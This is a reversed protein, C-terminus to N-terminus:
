TTRGRRSCITAVRVLDAISASSSLCGCAAGRGVLDAAGPADVVRAPAVDVEGLRGKGLMQPEVPELDDDIAGIARGILDRGRGQPLQAGLDDRDADRGVADVDVVAAARGCRLAAAPFPRRSRRRVDADREVAVGVPQDDDVLLALDISPSWSIASIASPRRARPSSRPPPAPRSPSTWGRARAAERLRLARRQDAGLDAVAIHELRHARAAVVDAALLRPVDDQGVM